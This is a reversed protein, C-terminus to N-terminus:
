QEKFQNLEPIDKASRSAPLTKIYTYVDGLQADSLVKTSYSPMQRTRPSRVYNVFGAQTMRMPVLRAGPGNQGSFGHCGYCTYKLFIDKGAEANEQAPSSVVSLAAIAALVLFRSAIRIM